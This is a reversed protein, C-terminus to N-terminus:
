SVNSVEVRAGDTPTTILNKYWLRDTQYLSNKDDNQSNGSEKKLYKLKSRIAGLARGAADALISSNLEFDIHEDLTVGLYKYHKVTELIRSEFYFAHSSQPKSSQRFHIIQTKDANISM